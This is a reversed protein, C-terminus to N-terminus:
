WALSSFQMIQMYGYESAGLDSGPAFLFQETEGLIGGGFSLRRGWIEARRVESTCGLAFEKSHQASVIM